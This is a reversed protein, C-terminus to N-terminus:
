KYLPTASLKDIIISQIFTNLLVQIKKNNYMYTHLSHLQFATMSSTVSSMDAMHCVFGVRVVYHMFNIITIYTRPWWLNLLIVDPLCIVKCLDPLCCGLYVCPVATIRLFPDCSVCKSSFSRLVSLKKCLFLVLQADTLFKEKKQLFFFCQM